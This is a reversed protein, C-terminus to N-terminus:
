TLNQRRYKLLKFLNGLFGFPISELFFYKSLVKGITYTSNGYISRLIASKKGRYTGEQEISTKIQISYCPQSSKDIKGQKKV